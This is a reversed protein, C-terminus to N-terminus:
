LKSPFRIRKGSRAIRTAWTLEAASFIEKGTSQMELLVVPLVDVWSISKEFHCM